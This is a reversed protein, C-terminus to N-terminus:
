NDTLDLTARCIPKLIEPIESGRPLYLHRDDLAKIRPGLDIGVTRRPCM